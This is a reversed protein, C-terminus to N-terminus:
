QPGSLAPLCIRRNVFAHDEAPPMLLVENRSFIYQQLEIAQQTQPTLSLPAWEDSFDDLQGALGGQLLLAQASHGM